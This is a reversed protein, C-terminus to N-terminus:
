PAVLQISKSQYSCDTLSPTQTLVRSLPVKNQLVEHMRLEGKRLNWVTDTLPEKYYLAFFCGLVFLCAFLFVLLGGGGWCWLLYHLIM